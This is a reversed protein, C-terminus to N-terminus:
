RSKLTKDSQVKLVTIVDLRGTWTILPVDSECVLTHVSEPGEKTELWWRVHSIVLGM